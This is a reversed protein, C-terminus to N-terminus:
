PLTGCAAVPFRFDDHLAVPPPVPSTVTATDSCYDLDQLMILSSSLGHDQSPSHHQLEEIIVDRVTAPNLGLSVTIIKEVDEHALPISSYFFSSLLNICHLIFPGALVIILLIPSSGIVNQM